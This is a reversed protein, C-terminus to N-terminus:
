HEELYGHIADVHHQLVSTHEQDTELYSFQAVEEKPDYSFHIDAQRTTSIRGEAREQESMPVDEKRLTFELSTNATYNELATELQSLSLGDISYTEASEELSM